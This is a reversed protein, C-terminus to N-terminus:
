QVPQRPRIRLEDGVRQIDLEIDPRTYAIESPIAIAQANDSQVLRTTHRRMKWLSASDDPMPVAYHSQPPLSLQSYARRMLEQQETEPMDPPMVVITKKGDRAQILYTYESEPKHPFFHDRIAPLAISLVVTVLLGAALMGLAQGLIQWSM